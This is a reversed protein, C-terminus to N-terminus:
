RPTAQYRSYTSEAEAPADVPTPPPALRDGVKLGDAACVVLSTVYTAAADIVLATQVPYDARTGDCETTETRAFPATHVVIVQSARDDDDAGACGLRKWGGGGRRGKAPDVGVQSM